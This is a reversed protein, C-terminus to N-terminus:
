NRYNREFRTVVEVHPTHPFLDLVTSGAHRYGHAALLTTDRALSVPDCSVLVVTAAGTAALVAAADAGLGARAPDVVALDVAEPTWREFPMRHVAAGDGLNAVADACSSLSSEVVISREAGLTAAFLGIGGYADLLPTRLGDLEVGCAARVTRVLLEAAEPGSQFFSAASVRLRATGVQEHIVASGGVGVHAPLGRIRADAAFSWATTEGTAVSVRLSVEDAGTVRLDPLLAALSPHAVMCSRLPVVRHSAAARLGVRGDPDVALRVTTRYAWPGVSAGTHVVADPLRATRRLADAVIEAKLRLQASPAIHQWGCGGCGNILEPCPASVRDPSPDLVALVSAKAFDKKSTHVAVQVTEGAVAGDVFVVRGDDLHAIADGGAAMKEAVVTQPPLAPLPPQRTPTPRNSASRNSNPRNRRQAM